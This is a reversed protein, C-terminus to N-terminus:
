GRARLAHALAAVEDAETTTHTGFRDTARALAQRRPGAHVERVGTSLVQALTHKRIGGGAVVTIRDGAAEVLRRLVHAGDSASPAAGSTLVRACGLDILTALAHAPERAADFARHFTVPLPTAVQILHRMADTDIEGDATLAGFVVGDAGADRCAAIDRRMVDLEGHTYAFGGGRPRVMAFVPVGARAKVARLLGASPTLGNESLAACLELRDAGARVAALAGEVDDVAVELTVRTPSPPMQPSDLPLSLRYPVAM